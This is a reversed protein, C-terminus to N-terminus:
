QLVRSSLRDRLIERWSNEYSAVMADVTWARARIKAHAAREAAATRDALIARIAAATADVDRPPVFLADDDSAIERHTPIESLIMPLGDLFAEGIANPHGEFSSVLIGFGASRRWVAVDDVWGHFHVRDAIGLSRALSELNEREHGQGCVDLTCDTKAVARLVVDVNKPPDLRGVYLGRNEAREVPPGEEIPFGNRIMYRRKMGMWYQVGAQTNAIVASAFARTVIRRILGRVGRYLAGSNAERVVFPVRAIACAIGGVVDTLISGSQVLDPKWARVLRLVDVIQLPNWSHRRRLREGRAAVMVEHGRKELGEALYMTQREAGGGSQVAILLLIRM